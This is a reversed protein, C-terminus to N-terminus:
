GALHGRLRSRCAPSPTTTTLPTVRSPRPMSAPWNGHKFSGAEVDKQKMPVIYANGNKAIHAASKEQIPKPATTDAVLTLHLNDLSMLLAKFAMARMVSDASMLGTEYAIQKLTEDGSKIMADFTALRMNQDPGNLIKRLEEIERAQGRAKELIKAATSQAEVNAVPLLGLPVALAMAAILVNM